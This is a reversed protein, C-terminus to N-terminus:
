AEATDSKTVAPDVPVASVELAGAVAPRAPTEPDPQSQPDSDSDSNPDTTPTITDWQKRRATKIAIAVIFSFLVVFSAYVFRGQIVGALYVAALAVGALTFLLTLGYLAFVALKVTGLGRLMMHHIHGNDAESMSMGSLKRRIIALLTDMIPLSFIILGAIVLHTQGTEGFMLIIVVCMYGLLLSGCDGLFIAAPNFNYPLFGLVAGLLALCVVIRAGSLTSSETVLSDDVAMLISIALFGLAMIATSGTLLGDLGDLLNAANCGGVVFVAILFTGTWYYIEGSVLPYEMVTFLVTDQAGLIPWLITTAVQVGVDSIALGAAAVLQGAIKLRPDWHWVDDMFGTIGIAFMGLLVGFPVLDYEVPVNAILIYSYVLGASIGIMVALGGLYAIPFKHLKRQQDPADVVGGKVALMRIFPTVLITVIFSVIFIPVYSNLLGTVTASAASDVSGGMFDPHFINPDGITSQLDQENM